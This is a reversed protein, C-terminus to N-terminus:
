APSPSISITPSQVTLTAPIPYTASKNVSGVVLYTYTYNTVKFTYTGYETPIFSLPKQSEFEGTSNIPATINEVPQGNYYVTVNVAQITTPFGTGNISVTFGICTQTTNLIIRPVVTWTANAYGGEYTENTGPCLAGVPAPSPTSIAVISYNGFPLHQIPITINFSATETTSVLKETTNVIGNICIDVYTGQPFNFGKLTYNYGNYVAMLSPTVYATTVYFPAEYTVGSSQGVAIIDYEGPSSPATFHSPSMSSVMPVPPQQTFLRRPV